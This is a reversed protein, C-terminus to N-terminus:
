ILKMIIAKRTGATRSLFTSDGKRRDL